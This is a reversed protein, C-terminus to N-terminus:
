KSLDALKIHYYNEHYPIMQFKMMYSVSFFPMKQASETTQPTYTDKFMWLLDIRTAMKLLLGVKCLQRKVLYPFNHLKMMLLGLVCFIKNKPSKRNNSPYVYRLGGM